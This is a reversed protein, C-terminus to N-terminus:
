PPGTGGYRPAGALLRTGRLMMDLFDTGHARASVCAIGAVIATGIGLMLRLSASETM